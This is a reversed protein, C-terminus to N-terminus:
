PSVGPGVRQMPTSYPGGAKLTSGHGRFAPTGTAMAGYSGGSSMATPMEARLVAIEQSLKTRHRGISWVSLGFGVVGTFVLLTLVFAWHSVDAAVQYSDMAPVPTSGIRVVDYMWWVGFGGLTFLKYIGIEVMGLYFQDVGFMGLFMSLLFATQQSKRQINCEPGAWDRDCSCFRLDNAPTKSGIPPLDYWRQCSGHGSCQLAAALGPQACSNVVERSKNAGDPPVVFAYKKLYNDQSQWNGIMHRPIDLVCGQLTCGAWAALAVGFLTTRSQPSAEEVGPAM